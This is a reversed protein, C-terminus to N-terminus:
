IEGEKKEDDDDDDDDDDHGHYDHHHLDGAITILSVKESCVDLWELNFMAPNEDTVEIQM